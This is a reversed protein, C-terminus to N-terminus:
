LTILFRGISFLFCFLILLWKVKTFLKWVTSNFLAFVLWTEFSGAHVPSAAISWVNISVSLTVNRGGWHQNVALWTDVMPQLYDDIEVNPFSLLLAWPSFSSLNTSFAHCSFFRVKSNLRTNWRFKFLLSGYHFNSDYFLNVSTRENVAGILSWPRWHSSVIVVVKIKM